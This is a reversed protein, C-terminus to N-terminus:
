TKLSWNEEPLHCLKHEGASGASLMNVRDEFASPPPLDAGSPQHELAMGAFASEFGSSPKSNSYNGNSSPFPHGQNQLRNDDQNLIDMSGLGNHLGNNRSYQHGQSFVSLNYLRQEKAEAPM